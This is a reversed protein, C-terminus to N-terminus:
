EYIYTRMFVPAMKERPRVMTKGLSLLRWPQWAQSLGQKSMSFITRCLTQAQVESGSPVSSPVNRNIKWEKQFEMLHQVSFSLPEVGLFWGWVLSYRRDNQYWAYALLINYHVSLCVSLCASVCRVAFWKRVIILNMGAVTCEYRVHLITPLWINKM